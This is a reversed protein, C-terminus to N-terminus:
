LITLNPREPVAAVARCTTVAARRILRAEKLTGTAFPMANRTAVTNEQIAFKLQVKRTAAFGQDTTRKKATDPMKPNHQMTIAWVARAAPQESNVAVRITTM